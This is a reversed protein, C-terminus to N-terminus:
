VDILNILMRTAYNVFCTLKTVRINITIYTDQYTLVLTTTLQYKTYKNKARMLIVIITMFFDATCYVYPKRLM